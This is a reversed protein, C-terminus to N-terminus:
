PGDVMQTVPPVLAWHTTPSQWSLVTQPPRIQLVVVWLHSDQVASSWHALSGLWTLVMQLVAAPASWPVQTDSVQPLSFEAHVALVPSKQQPVVHTAPLQQVLSWHEPAVGTHVLFRHTAAAAQSGAASWWITTSGTFPLSTEGDLPLPL